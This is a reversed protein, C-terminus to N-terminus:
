RLKSCRARLAVSMSADRKLAIKENLKRPQIRPLRTALHISSLSIAGSRGTKRRYLMPVDRESLHTHLEDADDCGFWIAIGVRLRDTDGFDAIPRIRPSSEITTPLATRAGYGTVNGWHRRPRTWVRGQWCSASLSSWLTPIQSFLYTTAQSATLCRIRWQLGSVLHEGRTPPTEPPAFLGPTGESRYLPKARM